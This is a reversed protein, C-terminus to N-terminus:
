DVKTTKLPPKGNVGLVTHMEWIRALVDYWSNKKKKINAVTVM